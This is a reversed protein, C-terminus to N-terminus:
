KYMTIATNAKSNNGSPWPRNRDPVGPLGSGLKEGVRTELERAPISEGIDIGRKSEARVPAVLLAVSLVFLALFVPLGSKKRVNYNDM